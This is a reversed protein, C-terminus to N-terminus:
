PAIGASLWKWRVLTIREAALEQFPGTLTFVHTSGFSPEAEIWKGGGLFALVHSGSPMVALDGPQAGVPNGLTAKVAPPNVLQTRGAAARGMELASEDHWWLSIAERVARPNATQWGQLFLADVLARRVLGSCDIGLSNEGGWIYTVGGYAQLREVYVRRLAQPDIPRGPLCLFLLLLLTTAFLAAAIAKRRLWLLALLGGWVLVLLAILVLRIKGTRIPFATLMGLALALLDWGYWLLRAKM